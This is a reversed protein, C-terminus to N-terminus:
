CIYDITFNGLTIKCSKTLPIVQYAVLATGDVLTQNTSNLDKIYYRNGESFIKAHIRSIGPQSIVCDAKQPASGIVTDGKIIWECMRNHESWQLFPPKQFDTETLVVTMQEDSTQARPKIIHVQKQEYPVAKTKSIVTVFFNRNERYWRFLFYGGAACALSLILYFGVSLTGFRLNEFFCALLSFFCVFGLIGLICRYLYLKRKDPVETEDSVSDPIVDPQILTDETVTYGDTEDAEEISFLEQLSCNETCLRKYIGYALTVADNDTHDVASLICNEFLRKMNTFFDYEDTEFYAFSCSGTGQDAFIYEPQLILGDPRLLYEDLSLLVTQVSHIFSQLADRNMKRKEYLDKLSSKMSVPYQYVSANNIRQIKLPLLGTIRNNEVMKMEYCDSQKEARIQMYNGSHERIFEVNM